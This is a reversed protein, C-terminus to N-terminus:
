FQYPRSGAQKALDCALSCEHLAAQPSINNLMRAGASVAIHVTHQEVQLDLQQLGSVIADIQRRLTTASPGMLACGFVDVSIRAIPSAEPLLQKLWHGFAVLIRDGMDRGLGNNILAFRRIDLLLLAQTDGPHEEAQRTMAAVLGESNLLGTLPDVNVQRRLARDLRRREQEAQLRLWRQNRSRRYSQLLLWLLLLGDLVLLLAFARLATIRESAQRTVSIQIPELGQWRPLQIALGLPGLPASPLDRVREFRFDLLELTKRSIEEDLGELPRVFLLHGAAPRNAATSYILQASMLYPRGEYMALFTQPVAREPQPIVQMLSEVAKAPLPVIRKRVPDWRASSVPKRKIDFVLVLPTRLFTESNYNGYYDPNLGKVHKYSEDWSAWDRTEILLDNAVYDLRALSFRTILNNRYNESQVAAAALVLGSLLTSGAVVPLWTRWRAAAQCDQVFRRWRRRQMALSGSRLGIQRPQQRGM